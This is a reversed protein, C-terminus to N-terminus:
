RMVSQVLDALKKPNQLTSQFITSSMNVLATSAQAAQLAVAVDTDTFTAKAYEENQIQLELSQYTFNLQSKTGGLQAIMNSIEILASDIANSAKMATDKATINTGELGLANVTAANFIIDVNASALDGVQFTMTFQDGAAVNFLEIGSMPKTEDINAVTTFTLGNDFVVTRANQNLIATVENNATYSKEWVSEGNSIKYTVKNSADDYGYSLGYVGPKTAAGAKIDTLTSSLDTSTSRMSIPNGIDLQFQTNIEKTTETTTTLGAGTVNLTLTNAPDITSTLQYNGATGMTVTGIFAQGGISLNIVASNEGSSKVNVSDVSGAVFGTVAFQAAINETGVGSTGSDPLAGLRTNDSSGGTFLETGNWAVSATADIQSLLSQYEQDLMARQSSGIADSNSQTARTKMTQLIETITQLSGAALSILASAQTVNAAGQTQAMISSILNAGVAAAAPADSADSDIRGSALQANAKSLASTNKSYYRSANIADFNTNISVIGM